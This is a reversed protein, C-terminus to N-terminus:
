RSVGAQWGLLGKPRFLLVIILTAFAIAPRYNTSISLEIFALVGLNEALGLIYSAIIAGYFSGLGGLVVAAFTPLLLEWGMLPVLRTNAGWLVGGLGATGAGIFWVWFVMKETDIGCCQSLAPNDATARMAKGLKTKTFLLHLAGVLLAATIIIAINIDTISAGFVEYRGVVGLNYWLVSAGWLEQIVHRLLLGLGISIIMLPVATAGVRRVPRFFARDLLVATLGTAPFAIAASLWM